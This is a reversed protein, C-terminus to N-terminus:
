PAENYAAKAAGSIRAPQAMAGFRAQLESQITQAAEDASRGQAKLERARAQVARLYDRYTSIAAADVLKGHSPVIVQPKMGDLRDLAALWARVSSYPSAFAPLASMVVDGAFLTRDGEVFFVTDGRTHTPGVATMQVRVGGLDLTYHQEFPVDTKRYAAGKLLEARAPSQRAFTEALQLGFEAIDADQGRSRIVKTDAPFAQAGLDHEPHVHTVALFLPKDAGVKAAERVVTAGNRPGLGTDIVLTARSGVVVGVNPVLPVDGDLLVYVNPSVKVAVGERVLPDQPAAAQFGAFAAVRLSAAVSLAFVFTRM